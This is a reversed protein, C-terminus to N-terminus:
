GGNGQTGRRGGKETGRALGGLLAFAALCPMAVNATIRRTRVRVPPRRPSVEGVFAPKTKRSMRDEHAQCLVACAIAALETRRYGRDDLEGNQFQWERARSARGPEPRRAPPMAQPRPCCPAPM